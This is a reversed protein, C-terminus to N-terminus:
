SWRGSIWVYGYPRNEWHGAIWILGRRPPIAWYGRRYAYGRGVPVYEDAVWVHRFTPCVPRLMVGPLFPRARVIIEQAKSNSAAMVVVIAILMLSKVINKM